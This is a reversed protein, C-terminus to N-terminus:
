AQNEKTSTSAPGKGTVELNVLRQYESEDMGLLRQFVDFSHEGLLPAHRTVGGPTRSLIGPLGSQWKEGAEPHDVLVMHGRDRLAVDEATEQPNLVPAAYVGVDTLAAALTQKNWAGVGQEVMVDVEAERAKRTASQSFSPADLKLVECLKAWQGDSEVAIACWQDEGETRYIGHPCHLPHTNGLPGRVTGLLEYELWADGIFTFNAEQMSLDIYQGDGTKDRHLLALALASFGCLGAVPDPYMQGSNLPHEGPYGLLASMGSSPEITGGIGPVNVWPGTAGYASLSAMVLDPKIAKLTAYDIGLKGMVRPSFNEAVFDAHTVLSKFIRVGEETNLDLTICQKNLNVSNYLPSCNWAHQASPLDQLQKPIPNQYTGRWSDLRGRVELQIVEAGLLALLETAYAGAWAQTLVLGRFGNLPGRGAPKQAVEVSETADRVPAPTPMDRTEITTDDSTADLRWGSRSMNAFPGPFRIGAESRRFFERANLQPNDALENMYLVPGAIVRQAALADFLEMKKWGAMAASVRDAFRDKLKPRLGAQQLEEDDALDPLDLLRMAKIWFAPRSITLAFYGDAVQVPGENVDLELKRPWIFGSYQYRLPAPAATSVLVELEAVDILQGSSQKRLQEILACLVTGFAFTGAQYSAQYGSAKLPSRGQLGNVAAWGSLANVTLDNGPLGSREGTQGYPTIACVLAQANLTRLSAYDYTAGPLASTIVVNADAIAEELDDLMVNRKNALFYRASISKGHFFPPHARLPHGDAPEVMQVDAGYDALLRSCWATSARVGLDVVRIGALTMQKSM